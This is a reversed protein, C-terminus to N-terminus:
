IADPQGAKSVLQDNARGLHGRFRSRSRSRRYRRSLLSGLDRDPLVDRDCVRCHLPIHRRAIPNRQIDPTNLPQQEQPDLLFSYAMDWYIFAGFVFQSLEDKLGDSALMIESMARGGALHEKGMCNEIWPSSIGLTYVTLFASIPPRQSSHLEQQFLSLATQRELLSEEMSQPWYYNEHAASLSQIAHLLSPTENLYKLIPLGMPNMEPDWVMIHCAQKFWYQLQRSHNNSSSSPTVLWPLEMTWTKKRTPMVCVAGRNQCRRCVPYTEDCKVHRRKCEQCGFRSKPQGKGNCAKVVGTSSRPPKEDQRDLPFDLRIKPHSIQSFRIPSYNASM